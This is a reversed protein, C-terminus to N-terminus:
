GNSNVNSNYILEIDGFESFQIAKLIKLKLLELIALFTVIMKMRSVGKIYEFFYIKKNIELEKVLNEIVLDMSVEEEIIEYPVNKQARELFEKFAHLFSLIDVEVLEINEEFDHWTSERIFATQTREEIDKLIDASMQYKKYELLQEVLEFPLSDPEHDEDFNPNPLLLKSKYFLLKSAMLVFDSQEELKVLGSKIFRIFDETIRSLSVQFIDVEYSEILHWLLGLPGEHLNGEITTFKVSFALSNSEKELTM